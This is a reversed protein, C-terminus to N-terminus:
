MFFRFDYAKDFIAENQKSMRALVKAFDLTVPLTKYLSDGSNWNMKTLMLIERVLTDGNAKGVFRKVLLPSPIGRSGKYYNLTGALDPHIVCGHTWLLFSDRNLQVTLGRKVPFGYAKRDPKDGFRIGRWSCYDQIQLLEVDVGKFAQMIGSIEERIFPTTKHIVIRKLTNVPTSHYYQERLETMMIRADEERMFPNKKGIFIPNNIKRLIMRIGTGTSDFLQSCGICIKKENSYAYSIGIYATDDQIAEPHWLIGSAKAYLGTSLGWMVKCPDYTNISKEEIIQLKVGKETAYLKLADHLNFDPSIISASRFHAFYKPIYIILVDFELAHVSYYDIGRKMFALFDEPCKQAIKTGDYGICINKQQETPVSLSRRYVREFGEYHPLFKDKGKNQVITNLMNLHALIKRMDQNPSLLALKISPHVSDNKIYSCDIPGYQCLGKLQNVTKKSNDRDSFRMVPEDYKCAPMTLWEVSREIGGFSIAPVTFSISFEDNKFVLKGFISNYCVREWFRLNNNYQTNYIKSINRNVQIQYAEKDLWEDRNGRVHISPSLNLYLAGDIFSVAFELANYIRYGMDVQLSKPNYVKNKGYSIMGKSVLTQKIMQYILGIYISDYKRIIREPVEERTIPSLIHERFVARLKEPSSFSYIHKNYLAVLVGSEAIITRLEAWSTIDTEFVNCLPFGDAKYANLKIFSDVSQGSFQLESKQRFLNSQNDILDNHYNQVRYISFMLSDFGDIEIFDAQKGNTAAREILSKVRPNIYSNKRITWLLGKTLFSPNYINNELFSMVSEDNGSYGIVILQKDMLQNAAYGKITKELEQLERSTNRLWDYRYDGHLKGVVPLNPNLLRVSNQNAESCILIDSKPYLIHIANEILPDFNTTWINKIKGRTIIEALCYYGISPERNSVMREIFRNRALSDTYCQEFYYSYENPDYQKPFGEKKDFYKQLIKQTTPLSLDKYKETSIGCESCYLSRKFEWILDSGTPIGSAISAGAGLFFDVEGDAMVSFNRVFQEQTLM